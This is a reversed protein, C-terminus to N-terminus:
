PNKKQRDHKYEKKIREMSKKYIRRVTTEPIGIIDSVDSFSLEFAAKYAVIEGELKTLPPSLYKSM